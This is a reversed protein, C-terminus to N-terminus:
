RQKKKRETEREEKRQGGKGEERKRFATELEEEGGKVGRGRSGKFGRIFGSM